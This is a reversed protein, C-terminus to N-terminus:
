PFGIEEVKNRQFDIGEGGGVHTMKKTYFLFGCLYM